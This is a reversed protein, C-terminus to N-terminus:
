EDDGPGAPTLKPKYANGVAIEPTGREIRKSADYKGDTSRGGKEFGKRLRRSGFSQSSAQRLDLAAEYDEALAEDGLTAPREMLILGDREIPADDGTIDGFIGPYHKKRVPRFGAEMAANINAPDPKGHTSARVARLEFNPDRMAEPIDFPSMVGDDGLARRRTIIEGDRGFAQGSRLEARKVPRGRPRPAEGGSAKAKEAAAAANARRKDWARKARETGAATTPRTATDHGRSVSEM